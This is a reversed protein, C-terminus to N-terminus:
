ASRQQLVSAVVMAGLGALTVWIGISTDVALSIGSGDPLNKSERAVDIVNWVITAMAVGSLALAITSQRVYLAVLTSITLLLVLLVHVGDSSRFGSTTATITGVKISVWPLMMGLLMLIFGGFALKLRGDAMVEERVQRSRDPAGDGPVPPTVKPPTVGPIETM